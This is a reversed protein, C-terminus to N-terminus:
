LRDDPWITSCSAVLWYSSVANRWGRSSNNYPTSYRTSIRTTRSTIGVVLASTTNHLSPKLLLPSHESERQYTANPYLRELHLTSCQFSTPTPKWLDFREPVLKPPHFSYFRRLGEQSTVYIRMRM